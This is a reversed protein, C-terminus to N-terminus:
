QYQEQIVFSNAIMRFLPELRAYNNDLSNEKGPSATVMCQVSIMKNGRLTVFQLCRMTLSLDLRQLTQDYIM